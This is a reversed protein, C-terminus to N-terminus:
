GKNLEKEIEKRIPTNATMYKLTGRLLRRYHSKKVDLEIELSTVKQLTNKLMIMLILIIVAPIAIIVDM